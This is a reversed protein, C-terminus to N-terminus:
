KYSVTETYKGHYKHKYKYKFIWHALSSSTAHNKVIIPLPQAWLAPLLSDTNKKVSRGKTVMKLLHFTHVCSEM